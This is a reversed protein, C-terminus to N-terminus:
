DIYIEEAKAEKGEIKAITSSKICDVIGILDPNGYDTKLQCGGQVINELSVLVKKVEPTVKRKPDPATKTYLWLAFKHIIKKM